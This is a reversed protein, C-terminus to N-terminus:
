RKRSRKFEGFLAILTPLFPMLVTILPANVKDEVTDMLSQLRKFNKFVVVLLTFFLAAALLFAVFGAFYFLTQILPM